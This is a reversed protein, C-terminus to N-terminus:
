ILAMRGPEAATRLGYAVGLNNIQWDPGFDNGGGDKTQYSKLFEFYGSFARFSPWVAGQNERWVSREVSSCPSGSNAM